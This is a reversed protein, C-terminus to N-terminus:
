GCYLRTITFSDDYEVNLRDERYDMTIASNPPIWRLSRAGTAALLARGTEETAQAGLRDQVNDTDCQGEPAPRLPPDEGADPATSACAALLPLALMTSLQKM